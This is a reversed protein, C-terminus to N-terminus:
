RLELLDFVPGDTCALKMGGAVPVACGQCAGVGCAMEPVILAQAFRGATGTRVERVVEALAKYVGSDASACVCDAWRVLDPLLDLVSGGYGASGDATVLHVELGPPLLRVPYADDAAPALLLLTVSRDTEGPSSSAQAALPLLAPLSTAGVVLLLRRCSAPVEFGHGLPGILDVEGGLELAAAAHAPPVLVEFTDKELRSPFFPVRLVRGLDALVFRGASLGQAIEPARFVVRVFPGSKERGAVSAGSQVM